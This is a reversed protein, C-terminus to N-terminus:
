SPSRTPTRSFTTMPTTATFRASLAGRGLRLRSPHAGVLQETRHSAEPHRGHPRISPISVGGRRGTALRGGPRTDKAAPAHPLRRGHDSNDRRAHRPPVRAPHPLLRRPPPGRLPELLLSQQPSQTGGPTVMEEIVQRQDARPVEALKREYLTRMRTMAAPNERLWAGFATVLAPPAKASVLQVAHTIPARLDDELRDLHHLLIELLRDRGVVEEAFSGRSTLTRSASGAGSRRSSRM